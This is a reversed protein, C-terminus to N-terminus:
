SLQHQQEKNNPGRRCALNFQEPTMRDQKLITPLDIWNLSSHPRVTNYEVRWDELVVKAEALTDFVQVALVEDRVRSGFSEVFPNQWPSGPEIYNTTSRNFRCWDRVAAATMEPGNDMRVNGPTGHQHALQDLITVLQDADISRALHIAHAQRTYEDIVHLLKIQRGDTTVDFQFDIAWINGPGTARHVQGTSQGVRRRKAGNPRGNSGKKAGCGSFASATSGCARSAFIVGRPAIGGGRISVVSRGFAIAFSMM